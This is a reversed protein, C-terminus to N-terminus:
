RQQGWSEATLQTAAYGLILPTRPQQQQPTGSVRQLIATGEHIVGVTRIVIEMKSVSFLDTEASPVTMVTSKSGCNDLILAVSQETM